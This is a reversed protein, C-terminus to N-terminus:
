RGPLEAVDHMSRSQQADAAVGLIGERREVEGRGCVIPQTRRGLGSIGASCMSRAMCRALRRSVIVADPENANFLRGSLLPIQMTAFYEPDVSQSLTRLGPTANYNTELAAALPAM